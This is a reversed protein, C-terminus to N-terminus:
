EEIWEIPEDSKDVDVKQVRFQPLLPRQHIKIENEINPILRPM